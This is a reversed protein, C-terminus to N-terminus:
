RKTQEMGFVICAEQWFCIFVNSQALQEATRVEADFAVEVAGDAAIDIVLSRLYAKAEGDFRLLLERDAAQQPTTTLTSILSLSALSRKAQSVQVCNCFCM